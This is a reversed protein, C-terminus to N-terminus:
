QQRRCAHTESHNEMETLSATKFPCKLCHFTLHLHIIQQTTKQFVSVDIPECLEVHTRTASPILPNDIVRIEWEIKGTQHNPNYVGLAKIIM